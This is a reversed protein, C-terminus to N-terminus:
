KVGAAVGTWLLAVFLFDLVGLAVLVWGVVVMWRATDRGRVLVIGLILVVLGGVSTMLTGALIDGHHNKSYHVLALAAGVFLVTALNAVLSGGIAIILNRRDQGSWGKDAEPVPVAPARSTDDDDSM